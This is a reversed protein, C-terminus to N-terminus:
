APIQNMWLLDGCVGQFYHLPHDNGMIALRGKPDTNLLDHMIEHDILWKTNTLSQRIFISHPRHWVGGADKGNVTFTDPVTYFSVADYNGRLGSCAELEGYWV